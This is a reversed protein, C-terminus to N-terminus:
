SHIKSLRLSVSGLYDFYGLTPILTGGLPDMNSDVLALHRFKVFPGLEM